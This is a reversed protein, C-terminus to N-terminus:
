RHQLSRVLSLLSLLGRLAEVWARTLNSAFVGSSGLVAQPRLTKTTIWRVSLCGLDASDAFNADAFGAALLCLRPEPLAPVGCRPGSPRDHIKLFEWPTVPDGPYLEQPMDRGPRVTRSPHRVATRPNMGTGMQTVM